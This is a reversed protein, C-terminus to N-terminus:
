CFCRQGFTKTRFHPIRLIRTDASSRLQKSLTYVTLLDSFYAPSSDSFLNHCIASLKYDIRAQVPLCHLTQLLPPVHDRKRAKFVIKKVTPKQVKELRSLLYLPCGSLLSYDLNSLVFACLLTKTAEVTLNQRISGIRTIEM